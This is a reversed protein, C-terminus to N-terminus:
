PVGGRRASTAGGGAQQAAPPGAAVVLSVGANEFRAMLMALEPLSRSLRDVHFVVVVDVKCADCDDLLLRLAPRQLGVGCLEHDEFTAIWRGGLRGRIYAACVDRQADLTAVMARRAIGAATRAYIVCRATEAPVGPMDRPDVAPAKM